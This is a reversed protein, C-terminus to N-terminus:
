LPGKSKLLTVMKGRLSSSEKLFDCGPLSGGTMVPSHVGEMRVIHVKITREGEGKTFSTRLIVYKVGKRVSDKPFFGKGLSSLEGGKKKGISWKGGKGEEGEEFWLKEGRAPTEEKSGKGVELIAELIFNKGKADFGVKKKEYIAGGEYLFSNKQEGSVVKKKKKKKKGRLICTKRL